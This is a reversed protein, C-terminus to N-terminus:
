YLSLLVLTSSKLIRGVPIKEIKVGCVSLIIPSLRRPDQSLVPKDVVSGKLFQARTAFVLCCCTQLNLAIHM